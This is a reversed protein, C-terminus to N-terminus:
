LRVGGGQRPPANVKSQGKDWDKPYGNPTDPNKLTTALQAMEEAMSKMEDDNLEDRFSFSGGTRIEFKIREVGNFEETKAVVDVENKGVGAFSSANTSDWGLAELRQLTYPKAGGEFSMITTVRMENLEHLILDVAIQRGGEKARGGRASGEVGHAKYVKGPVVDQMSM